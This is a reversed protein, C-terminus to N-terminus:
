RLRKRMRRRTLVAARTALALVLFAIVSLGMARLIRAALPRAVDRAALLPTSAVLKSGVMMRARGLVQGKRVPAAVSELREVVIEVPDKQRVPVAVALPTRPELEVTSHNGGRVTLLMAEGGPPPWRVERFNDFGYELLQQAEDFPQPSNLLVAVLQQGNRTASAVICRGSEKVYGTKVGDCSPMRWLLKNHNQIGAGLSPLTACRTRVLRRILSHRLAHRTILALDSATSFHGPAYLGHSNLFTTKGAGLQSARENMKRVFGAETGSLHEAAAVCADNASRVLAAALLERMTVIQGPKLGLAGPRVSAAAQSVCVKEDLRGSEVILLATMIKTLSAIPLPRRPDKSWLTKGTDVDVLIASASELPACANRSALALALLLFAKQTLLCFGVRDFGLPKRRHEPM